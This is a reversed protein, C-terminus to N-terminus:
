KKKGKKKAKQDLELAAEVIQLLLEDDWDEEPSFHFAGVLKRGEMKIQPFQAALEKGKPFGLYLSTKGLHLYCLYKQGYFVPIGWALKETLFPFQTHLFERISLALGQYAGPLKQYYNDLPHQMAAFLAKLGFVWFLGVWFGSKFQSM